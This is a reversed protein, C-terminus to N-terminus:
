LSKQYVRYTKYRTLNFTQALQYMPQNSELVWGSDTDYYKLHTMGEEFFSLNMAAEVGKARHEPEVGLLLIRQGTIKHRVKWYWLVKLLTIIEPEGPRPYAM